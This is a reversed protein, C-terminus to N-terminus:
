FAKLSLDLSKVQHTLAGMSIYDVGTEAYSRLTKENIGGSAETEFRKNVLRVADRIQDPSFNDLLIRKVGGIELVERLEEMSRVEIEIQLNLQNTKLYTFTNQLASSIGGSYDIHNDKILIMDFLGYRHNVAGGIKCAWKEAIRFNPTTKRTDLLKANTGLMLNCLSKTYTAIGSMRQMCNLVLREAKLISQSNGFVHLVVEGVQIFDGDKKFVEVKLNSDVEKFIHLALELGALIGEEKVLLKAKGEANSPITALSTFDGPGVDEALASQIFHKINEESLYNYM